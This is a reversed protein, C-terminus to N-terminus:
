ENEQCGNFAKKLKRYPHNSKLIRRHRLYVIKRGHQLQHHCTDEECILCAKHAKTIYGSLNGYAPFDNITCFLMAHLKFSDVTYEDFVVVGEEWLIKLDEVPEFLCWFWKRTTKSWLNDFIVDCIQVEHVFVFTLQLDSVVCAM